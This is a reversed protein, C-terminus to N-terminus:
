NALKVATELAQIVALNTASRMSRTQFITQIGDNLAPNLIITEWIGGGTNM